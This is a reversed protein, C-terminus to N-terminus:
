FSSLSHVTLPLRGTSSLLVLLNRTAERIRGAEDLGPTHRYIKPLVQVTRGPLRVVGVHQAAQIEVRGDVLVARLVEVGTARHLRTLAALDRPTAAFGISCEHEFLTFPAPMVVEGRAGGSTTAHGSQM